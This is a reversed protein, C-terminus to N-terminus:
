GTAMEKGLGRGVGRRPWDPWRNGGWVVLQCSFQTLKPPDGLHRPRPPSVSAPGRRHREWLAGRGLCGAPVRELRRWPWCLWWRRPRHGCGRSPAGRTLSEPVWSRMGVRHLGLQGAPGWLHCPSSGSSEPGGGDAWGPAALPSGETRQQWESVCQRQRPRGVHGQGAVSPRKRGGAAQAFWLIRSHTLSPHGIAPPPIPGSHTCSALCPHARVSVRTCGCAWAHVSARTQVCKSTHVGRCM